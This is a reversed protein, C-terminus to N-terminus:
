DRDRGHKRDNDRDRDDYVRGNSGISVHQTQPNLFDLKVQKGRLERAEVEWIYLGRRADSEYIYGNYWYSAWDGGRYTTRGGGVGNVPPDLPLPDMWAIEYTDVGDTFDMLATGSQYSGHVLLRRKTDPVINYNHITCNEWQSQPRPLTHTGVLDRSSTGFMFLTKMVDTQYPAEEPDDTLPAGTVQCRPNTGGGPEWGGIVQRGDWTFAASHWGHVTNGLGENEVEVSYLFEPDDLDSIDYLALGMPHGACAARDVRGLIVGMDHCGDMPEGNPNEGLDFSGIVEAEEPNDLPVEVIDERGFPEGPCQNGYKGPNAQRGTGSVSNYILVRDRREDPVVSHTHSGCDLPLSAIHRINNVNGIDFIQIGEFGTCPSPAPACDAGTPSGNQSVSSCADTRQPSDVSRFVLNKYVGVDGQPSVCSFYARERPRRPDSVDIIRFGDYRGQIVTKKWFALDTNRTDWPVTGPGAPPPGLVAGARLSQGVLEMNGTHPRQPDRPPGQAASPAAAILTLAVAALVSLAFRKGPRM